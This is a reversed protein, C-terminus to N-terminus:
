RKGVTEEEERVGVGGAGSGAMREGSSRRAGVGDVRDAITRYVEVDTM